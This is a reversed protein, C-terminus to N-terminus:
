SIFWLGKVGSIIFQVAIAWVILGMIRTLIKMGTIGITKYIVSAYL